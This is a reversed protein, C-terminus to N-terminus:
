SDRLVQGWCSPFALFNSKVSQRLLQMECKPFFDNKKKCRGGAQINESASLQISRKFGNVRPLIKLGTFRGIGPLIFIVWDLWIVGM